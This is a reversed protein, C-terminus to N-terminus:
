VTPIRISVGPVPNVWNIIEPNANAIRWWQTPDGFYRYALADITEQSSLIHNIYNFTSAVPATPLVVLRSTGNPMDVTVVTSTAYRSNSAIM